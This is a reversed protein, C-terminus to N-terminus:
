QVPTDPRLRVLHAACEVAHRASLGLQDAAAWIWFGTGHKAQQVSLLVQDSTAASQNSPSVDDADSVHLRDDELLDVVTAADSAIECEVFISSTVSHFVPAQLLQLELASDAALTAFDDRIQQAETLLDGKASGGLNPLLNFAIQTDFIEQPIAQFTLLASTQAHLEELGPKGFVSVPQLVTAMLKVRGLRAKLRAAIMALMLAAPHPCAVGQTALDVPAHAELWPSFTVFDPEGRLAGTFDVAIAADAAQAEKWHTKATTAESAAFFVVDMAAFRLRAGAARIVM